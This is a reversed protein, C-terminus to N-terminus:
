EGWFQGQAAGQHCASCNAPSTIDARKFISQGPDGHIMQWIPLDVIRLPTDTAALDRLFVRGEDHSPADAAMSMLYQAIEIETAKPLSADEGFHSSLHGLLSRWSRMPLMQPPFAIHCASCEKQTAANAIPTLEIAQAGAAGFSLLGTLAL